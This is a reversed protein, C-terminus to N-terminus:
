SIQEKAGVQGATTVVGTAYETKPKATTASTRWFKVPLGAKNGEFPGYTEALYILREDCLTMVNESFAFEHPVPDMPQGKSGAVKGGISVAFHLRAVKSFYTVGPCAKHPPIDDEPSVTPKPQQEGLQKLLMTNQASTEEVLKTLNNVREELASADPQPTPQAGNQPEDEAGGNKNNKNTPPM